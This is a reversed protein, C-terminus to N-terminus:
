ALLRLRPANIPSSLSSRRDWLTKSQYGTSIIAILTCDLTTQCPEPSSIGLDVIDPEVHLLVGAKSASTSILPHCTGDPTPPCLLRKGMCSSLSPTLLFALLHCSSM